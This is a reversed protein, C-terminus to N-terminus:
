VSSKQYSTANTNYVLQNRGPLKSLIKITLERERERGMKKAVRYDQKLKAVNCLNYQKATAAAVTFTKDHQIKGKILILYIYKVITLVIILLTKSKV